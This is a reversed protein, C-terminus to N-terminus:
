TRKSKKADLRPRVTPNTHYAWVLPHSEEIYDFTATVGFNFNEGKNFMSMLVANGDLFVHDPSHDFHVWSIKKLADLDSNVVFSVQLYSERDNSVPNKPRLHIHLPKESPDSSCVLATWNWIKSSDVVKLLDINQLTPPKKLLVPNSVPTRIHGENIIRRNKVNYHRFQRIEDELEEGHAKSIMMSPIRVSTLRMFNPDDSGSMSFVESGANNSVLIARGGARQVNLAKEYFTCGGRRVLVVEDTV